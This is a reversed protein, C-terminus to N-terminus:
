RTRWKLEQELNKLYVSQWKPMIAGKIIREAQKHFYIRQYALPHSEDGVRKFVADYNGMDVLFAGSVQAGGKIKVGSKGQKPSLSAAPVPRLGFFLRARGKYSNLNVTIRRRLTAAPLGTEARLERVALSRAWRLTKRTATYVALRLQKESPLWRSVLKSTDVEEGKFEFRLSSSM